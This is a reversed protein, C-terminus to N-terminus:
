KAVYLAHETAVWISGDALICPPTLVTEGATVRLAQLITGERDVIRLEPGVSLALTGDEFATGRIPAPSAHSWVVRGDEISAIGDGVVVVRGGACDVPPQNVAFPVTANWHEVGSADLAHVTTGTGSPSTMVIQPLVLSLTTAVYPLQLRVLEVPGGEKPDGSDSLIRLLKDGMALVIRWDPGIAAVGRGRFGGLFILEAYSRDPKAFRDAYVQVAWNGAGHPAVPSVQTVIFRRRADFRFALMSGEPSTGSTPKETTTPGGSWLVENGYIYFADNAATLDFQPNKDHGGLYKGTGDRHDYAPGWDTILHAGDPSAFLFRPKLRAEEPAGDPWGVAVRSLSAYTRRTAGVRSSRLPSAYSTVYSAPLNAAADHSGNSPQQPRSHGPIPTTPAPPSPIVASDERPHELHPHCTALALVLAGLEPRLWGSM